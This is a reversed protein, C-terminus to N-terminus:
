QKVTKIAETVGCIILDDVYLAILNLSEKYVRHYLCSERVM